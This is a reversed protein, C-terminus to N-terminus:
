GRWKNRVFKYGEIIFFISSAIGVISFLETVTLYDFQFLDSIWPLYIVLLMLVLSAIFSYIVWKNTFIGLKFLSNKLSRMNFVNFVQFMTMSVFAATRAKDLGQLLFYNFIPITAFVMLGVSIVLFPILARNLIGEKKDKPPQNLVDEHAPEMSLAINNMGDSVLNLYLLQIPLLPLPLGMILSTVITVDEAINTTILYFSTRRVNRFVTRGEEVADIISCFNDDSLIMESSERAIDTGMKGMSIGIDSKKLAPADNIGDGTMAVVEGQEQLTQVIKMKMKPTVRAFIDTERVAKNFNSKSLSNLEEETMVKFDEKILGIEKAIAIATEKHDGTKMIVRIGANRAKEISEKVGKRPPDKMGVLGVFILKDIDEKTISETKKPMNKYALALVRMGDKALSEAQKLFLGKSEKDLKTKKNDKLYYSCRDLIKEFAGVSYLEKENRNEILSARLKLETNFMFDDILKESLKEKNIGSKKSLVLLAVETPDGVIEYGKGKKILNGKNCLVSILMIKKLVDIKLADVREVENRFEGEPNWGDGSITYEDESTVIKEVTLSNQTLTGTKDTAIVTAVGITEVAPLYRIIANKKAMRRAGIALVIILIAPLGEPIGSVLSAITFLFIEIFGLGKFFYGITFTLIAGISAIVAMQISLQTVKKEFHMKPHVIEQISEAVQGIETRSGTAVIIAKAQGSVVFTGMFVMNTKNGLPTDGDLVRLNKDQPFSEGTLSSEQTRFNKIEILRADAPVKDGQELLIVDGLVLNSANVKKLDKDRYVKAYSVIIKKLANIAREAKREQVFGIVGNVIIIALIIYADIVHNVLYSIVMAVLLIYILPSNFQKLFIFIQSKERKEVIENPGSEKLKREAYKVSLGRESSKLYSFIEEKSEVHWNKM